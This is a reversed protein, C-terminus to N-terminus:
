PSVKIPKAPEIQEFTVVVKGGDPRQLFSRYADALQTIHFKNIPKVVSMTGNRLLEMMTKLHRQVVGWYRPHEHTTLSLDFSHFSVNQKMNALDFRGHDHIDTRGLEVFRGYHALVHFSEALLEGNSTAIVVDVGNGGTKALVGDVFLSDRSNFIHDKPVGYHQHLFERRADSGATLFIEAGVSKALQICAQGTAGAASQIM